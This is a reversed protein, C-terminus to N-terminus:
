GAKMLQELRIADLVQGTNRSSAGMVETRIGFHKFHNYIQRVSRVGPDNEGAQAAEDWGSCAVKILVRDVPIGEAQYLEGIRFQKLADLQDM